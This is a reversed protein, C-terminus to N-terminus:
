SALRDIFVQEGIITKSGHKPASLNAVADALESVQARLKSIESHLSSDESNM